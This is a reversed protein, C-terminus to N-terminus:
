DALDLILNLDRRCFVAARRNRCGGASPSAGGGFDDNVSLGARSIFSENSIQTLLMPSRKLEQRNVIEEISDLEGSAVVRTIETRLKLM